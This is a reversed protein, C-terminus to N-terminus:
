GFTIKLNSNGVKLDMGETLLLRTEPQLLKEEYFTGNTSGVDVFYFKPESSNNNNSESGRSGLPLAMGGEVLFTGHTTSVEADKHLSIGNKGFKKGKSRGIFCPAGPKPKLIFKTNAHPGTTVLIEIMSPNIHKAKNSATSAPGTVDKTATSASPKSDKVNNNSATSNILPDMNEADRSGDNTKSAMEVALTHLYM